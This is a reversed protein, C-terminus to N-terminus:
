QQSVAPKLKLQLLAVSLLIIVLGTIQIWTVHEKGLLVGFMIAVVPNAYAHTGVETAPREKLLWIYASYALISGFLILYVLSFWSSNSISEWNTSSPEGRAIAFIWFMASAFLMQWASGAFSYTSEEGSSFYKTYLTGLAWSICGFILILIGRESLGQIDEGMYQEVYLMAVGLFDM